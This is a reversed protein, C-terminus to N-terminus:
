TYARIRAREIHDSGVPLDLRRGSVGPGSSGAKAAPSTASHCRVRCSGLEDGFSTASVGRRATRKASSRYRNPARAAQEARCQTRARPRPARPPPSAREAGRQEGAGEPWRGLRAPAVRLLNVRATILTNEDGGTSSPAIAEVLGSPEHRKDGASSIRGLCTRWSLYRRSGWGHSRSVAPKPAPQTFAEGGDRWPAPVTIPPKSAAGGPTGDNALWVADEWHYCSRGARRWDQVCARKHVSSRPARDVGPDQLSRHPLLGAAVVHAAGGRRDRDVTRGDRVAHM